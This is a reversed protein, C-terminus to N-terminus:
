TSGRPSGWGLGSGINRRTEQGTLAFGGYPTLVGYGDLVGVGYGVQSELSLARPTASQVGTSELSAGPM